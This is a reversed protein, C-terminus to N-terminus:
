WFSLWIGKLDHRFDKQNKEQIKADMFADM